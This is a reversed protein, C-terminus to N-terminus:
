PDRSNRVLDLRSGSMSFTPTAEVASTSRGSNSLKPFESAPFTPLLIGSAKSIQDYPFKPFVSIRFCLPSPAVKPDGPNGAPERGDGERVPQAAAEDAPKVQRMEEPTLGRLNQKPM